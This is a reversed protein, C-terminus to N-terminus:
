SNKINEMKYEINEIDEIYLEIRKKLRPDPSENNLQQRFEIVKLELLEKKRELLEYKEIDRDVFYTRIVYIGKYLNMGFGDVVLPLRSKNSMITATVGPNSANIIVETDLKTTTKIVEDLESVYLLIGCYKPVMKIMSKSKSKNSYMKIPDELLLMTFDIMFTVFSSVDGILNMTGAIKITTSKTNIVDPLEDILSSLEKKKSVVLNTLNILTNTVDSDRKVKPFKSRVMRVYDVDLKKKDKLVLEHVVTLVPLIDKSISNYMADNLMVLDKKKINNNLLGM